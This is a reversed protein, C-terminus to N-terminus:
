DAPSVTETRDKLSEISGVIGLLGTSIIGIIQGSTKAAALIKTLSKLFGASGSCSSAKELYIPASSSRAEEQKQWAEMKICYTLIENLLEALRSFSEPRDIKESHFALSTSM